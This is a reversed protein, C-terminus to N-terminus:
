AAKTGPAPPQKLADPAPQPTPVMGGETLYLELLKELGVRAEDLDSVRAEHITAADGVKRLLEANAQQLAALEAGAKEADQKAQAAKDWATQLADPIPFM